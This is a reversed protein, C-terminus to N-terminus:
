TLQSTSRRVNSPAIVSVKRGAGVLVVIIGTQLFSTGIRARGLVLLVGMAVRQICGFLLHKQHPTLTNEIEEVLEKPVNELFDVHELEPFRRAVLLQRLRDYKVMTEEERLGGRESLEPDHESVTEYSAESFDDPEDDSDLHKRLSGRKEDPEVQTPQPIFKSISTVRGKVTSLTEM